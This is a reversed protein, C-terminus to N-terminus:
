NFNTNFYEQLTYFVHQHLLNKIKKKFKNNTLMKMHIPLHNYIKIGSYLPGNRIRDYNYNPLNINQNRVNYEHRDSPRPLEHQKKHILISIKFIYTNIMTMIGSDKFYTRCSTRHKLNFITRIAKKQTTFISGATVSTGWFEIGYQMLSHFYAFYVTKAVYLNTNQKITRIAFISKSLSNNLQSIHFNWNLHSDIHIGLFKVNDVSNVTDRGVLVTVEEYESNYLNFNINQTKSFNLALKNSLFWDSIGNM